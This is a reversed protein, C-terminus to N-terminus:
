SSRARERVQSVLVVLLAVLVVDRIAVLWSALPDFSYVLSWYRHPFWGRTLACAVVLLAAVPWSARASVLAVVVLLWILFQPSLVKGLVVFALLSSACVAVFVDAAASCRRAYRSWLWLLFGVQAVGTVAAAVTAVIGTLNQSGHSSNWGLPMGFQHLVLLFAAGLSEIQLPRGLQRSLSSAVGAPSLVFFPLFVAAAVGLCIALVVLAERRGRRKWVWAVVVPLLVLPYLKAAIALGLAAGGLRDRGALVAVLAGAVLAAPFFDFRTLVLPGLLLPAAASVATGVALRRPSAGLRRLALFAFVVCAAGFLAMEVGFARAYGRRSNAVFSPVAFVALSGPPYELRFDRYPLQGREIADGYREYVPVDSIGAHGRWVSPMAVCLVAFVALAGALIGWGGAPEDRM